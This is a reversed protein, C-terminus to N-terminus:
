GITMGGEDMTTFGLNQEPLREFKNIPNHLERIKNNSKHLESFTVNLPPTPHVLFGLRLDKLSVSPGPVVPPAPPSPCTLM